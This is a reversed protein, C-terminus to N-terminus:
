SDIDLGGGKYELVKLQERLMEVALPHVAYRGEGNCFLVARRRLM